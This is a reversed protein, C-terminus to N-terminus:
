LREPLGAHVPVPQEAARDAARRQGHGLAHGRDAHARGAVGPEPDRRAHPGLPQRQTRLTRDAGRTVGKANRAVLRYHYTTAPALGGIDATVAVGRNGKGASAPPSPVQTGYVRTTGYEFTYTTEAENPNVRGTLTATSQGVNAAPGTTVGPKAPAATAGAPVLMGLMILVAAFGTGGHIRRRSM